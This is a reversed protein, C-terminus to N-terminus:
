ISVNHFPLMNVSGSGNRWILSISTVGYASTAQSSCPVQLHRSPLGCSLRHVNRKPLM